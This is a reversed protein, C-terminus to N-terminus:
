KNIRPMQKNGNYVKNGCCQAPKSLVIGGCCVHTYPNYSRKGCCRNLHQHGSARPTITGGCCTYRSSDYPVVGCCANQSGTKKKVVLGCCLEKRPDYPRDGCCRDYYPSLARPERGKNRDITEFGCPRRKAQCQDVTLLIIFVLTAFVFGTQRMTIRSRFNDNPGQYQQFPIATRSFFLKTEQTVWTSIVRKHFFETDKIQSRSVSVPHLYLEVELLLDWRM